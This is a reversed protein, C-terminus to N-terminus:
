SASSLPSKRGLGFFFGILVGLLIIGHGWLWADTSIMSILCYIIGSGLLLSMRKDSKNTFKTINKFVHRFLLFYFASFVILGVIGTEVAVAIFTEHPTLNEVYIKFLYKNITYYNQSSFPFSYAGIGFVPNAIFANYATHWILVRSIFSNNIQGEETIQGQITQEAATLRSFTKPNFSVAVVTVMGILFVFIVLLRKLLTKKIEFYERKIAIFLFVIVSTMLTSIWTNRTQTLISGFTYLFMLSSYFIKEWITQSLIILVLSFIIGLSVYDVYMIGAFGFARGPKDMVQSFVYITNILLMSLYVWITREIAHVDEASAYLVCILGLFLLYHNISITALVINASKVISLCLIGLYLFFSKFMPIKFDSLAINTHTLFFSLVIFSVFIESVSFILLNAKIFFLVPLILLLIKFNHLCFFLIPLFGLVVILYTKAGSIIIVFLFFLNIFLLLAAKKMFKAFITAM